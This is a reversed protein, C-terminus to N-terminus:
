NITAMQVRGGTSFGVSKQTVFWNNNKKQHVLFDLIIGLVVNSLLSGVTCFMNFSSTKIIILFFIKRHNKLAVVVVYFMM